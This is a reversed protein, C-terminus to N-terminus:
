ALVLVLLMLLSTTKNIGLESGFPDLERRAVALARGFRGGLLLRCQWPPASSLLTSTNGRLNSVPGTGRSPLLTGPCRVHSGHCIAACMRLGISIGFRIVLM